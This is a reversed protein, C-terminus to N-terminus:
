IDIADYRKLTFTDFIPVHECEPIHSVKLVFGSGASECNVNTHFNYKAFHNSLVIQCQNIFISFNVGFESEPLPSIITIVFRKDNCINDKINYYLGSGTFFKTIVGLLYEYCSRFIIRTFRSQDPFELMEQSFPPTNGRIYEGAQISRILYPYMNLRGMLEDTFHEENRRCRFM